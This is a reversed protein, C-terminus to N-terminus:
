FHLLSSSAPGAQARFESPSPPTGGMKKYSYRLLPSVPVFLTLLLAANSNRSNEYSLDRGTRCAPKAGSLVCFARKGTEPFSDRSALTGNQCLPSVLHNTPLSKLHVPAATKM